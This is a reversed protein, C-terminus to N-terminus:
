NRAVADMGGIWFLERVDIGFGGQAFVAEAQSIIQSHESIRVQNVSYQLLPWMSSQVSLAPHPAMEREQPSPRPSPPSEEGAKARAPKMRIWRFKSSQVEFLEGAESGAAVAPWSTRRLSDLGVSCWKDRCTRRKLRHRARHCARRRLWHRLCCVASKDDHDPRADRGIM